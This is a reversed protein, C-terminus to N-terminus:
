SGYSKRKIIRPNGEEKKLIWAKGAAKPYGPRKQMDHKKIKYNGKQVLRPLQTKPTFSGEGM